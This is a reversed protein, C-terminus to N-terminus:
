QCLNCLNLQFGIWRFYGAGDKQCVGKEDPTGARFEPDGRNGPLLKGVKGSNGAFLINQKIHFVSYDVNKIESFPITVKVKGNPQIKKHLIPNTPVAFIQCFGITCLLLFIIQKKM